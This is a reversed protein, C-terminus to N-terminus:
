FAGRVHISGPGIGLTALPEEHRRPATFWLVAGGALAAGGVVMFVTSLTGAAYADEGASMGRPDDCEAGDCYKEAEDHKSKSKLGFVTGVGLGAVGVGGAILALVRQTGLGRRPALEPEPVGQVAAPAASTPALAPVEVGVNKAPGEVTVVRRWEDHGPAAAVITHEGVDAPIPVGWQPAGVSSGDRRVELGPIQKAEASVDIVLTSLSPRLTEARERAEKERRTNGASSAAAAAELYKNWASAHRGIQEYCRALNILTGSGPDLRQSEEFKPCAEAYRGQAFLTRAQEFLAQAATADATQAQARQAASALPLACVLAAVQIRRRFGSSRM